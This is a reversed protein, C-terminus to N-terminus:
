LYYTYKREYDLFLSKTRCQVSCQQCWEIRDHFMKTGKKSIVSSWPRKKKVHFFVFFSLMAEKTLLYQKMFNNRLSLENALAQSTPHTHRCIEYVNVLCGLSGETMNLCGFTGLLSKIM